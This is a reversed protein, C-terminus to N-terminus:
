SCPLIEKLALIYSSLRFKDGQPMLERLNEMTEIEKQFWELALNWFKHHLVHM